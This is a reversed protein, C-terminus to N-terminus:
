LSFTRILATGNLDSHIHPFVLVTWYKCCHTNCKDFDHSMSSFVSLSARHQLHDAHLYQIGGGARLKDEIVGECIFGIGTLIYLGIM